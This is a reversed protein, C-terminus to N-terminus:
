WEIGERAQIGREYPHRVARMETIYDARELLWDAPNRGTCVVEARNRALDLLEQLLRIDLLGWSVPYTVEDLVLVQCSEERVAQLMQRILQNHIETQEQKQPETMQSYFPFAKPSRLIRVQRLEGLIQLEATPGGKMFQSFIVQNGAGAARVALGIAATTKGKGEGHYVHLLGMNM